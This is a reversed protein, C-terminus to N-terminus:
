NFKEFGYKKLGQHCYEQTWNIYKPNLTVTWRNLFTPKETFVEKIKKSYADTMELGSFRFITRFRKIPEKVTDELSYDLFRGPYDRKLKDIVKIDEQIKFCLSKINNMVAESDNDEIPYWDTRIRSYIIGRPDRIVFLVKLDPIERMLLPLFSLSIRLVKTVRLKTEQCHSVLKDLCERFIEAQPGPSELLRLVNKHKEFEKTWVTEVYRVFDTVNPQVLKIYCTTFNNWSDGSKSMGRVWDFM